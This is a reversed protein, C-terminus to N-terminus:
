LFAIFTVMNMISCSVPFYLVQVFHPIRFYGLVWFLSLHNKKRIKKGKFMSGVSKGSVDTLAQWQVRRLEGGGFYPRLDWSHFNNLGPFLGSSNGSNFNRINTWLTSLAKKLEYIRDRKLFHILRADSLRSTEVVPTGLSLVSHERSPTFQISVAQVSCLIAQSALQSEAPWPIGPM